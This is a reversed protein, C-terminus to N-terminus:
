SARRGRGLVRDGISPTGAAVAQPGKAVGHGPKRPLDGRRDSIIRARRLMRIAQTTYGSEEAAERTTLVENQHEDYDHELQNLFKHLLKAEGSDALISESLSSRQRAVFDAVFDRM